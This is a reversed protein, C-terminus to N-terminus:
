ESKAKDTAVRWRNIIAKLSNRHVKFGCTSCIIEYDYMGEGAFLMAAGGDKPCPKLNYPKAQKLGDRKTEETIM